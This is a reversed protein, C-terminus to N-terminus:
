PKVDVVIQYDEARVQCLSKEDLEWQGPTGSREMDELYLVMAGGTSDGIIAGFEQLGRAIILAQPRLGLTTLDLDPRIRMRSGQPPATPSDLDGDTGTMPYVAENRSNHVGIKVVNDVRGALVDDYGVAAVAGNYGRFSGGNRTEDSDELAGYLGNSDLYVVSGGTVSWTNDEASFSAKSLQAVFRRDVDYIVMESDRTEAPLAGVPIRLSAFEPPVGYKSSKVEYVPSDKDATYVPMGWRNEGTGTLLICGDDQNDEKLFAVIEASLPHLPADASLPTNWFSDPTFADPVAIRDPKGGTTSFLVILGAIAAIGIWTARRKM